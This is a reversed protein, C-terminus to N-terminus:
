LSSLKFMHQLFFIALDMMFIPGLRFFIPWNEIDYLSTQSCLYSGSLKVNPRTFVLIPAAASVSREKHM